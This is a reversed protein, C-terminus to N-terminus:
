FGEVIKIEEPTLEYLQYVLQDIQSEYEEVKVQKELDEFHDSSKAISLIKDVLSIVGKQEVDPPKIIPLDIIPEKDIQFNNGQMKGKWRLWFAMLSSNLLGVLYKQNIRESKIIYFTASVYCDFETYTFTPKVCKRVSIIKEGKFFYEDRARHLGYPKNDSTIVKKFQDLHNKIKPYSEIKKSDKFTSDTYIVWEENKSDGYWRGLKKTTYYPKVIELETKNLNIIAKENDSLVFIGTGVSFNNGLKKQSNKNVFNQPFVIGQAVEKMPDLKFNAKLLIKNLITEIQSNGFTLKKDIFDIRNIKPYLYEAKPDEVRNLISIVDTFKLNDGTLKRYDFYYEKEMSDNKFIMVMTQIGASEFIKYDGFDILSIIKTENIVKNRLISAGYSTVWNNQAIFTLIGSHNKLFDISKCAFLYWLDMKGQYYSSSRLENFASKQTYEKIYPPNAIVVDFGGNERFIDAFNLKWLFFPKTNTKKFREIENIKDAKGQDNLTTEILEWILKEIEKKLEDKVSKQSTEFFKKQLESLEQAKKKSNYFSNFLTGEESIKNINKLLNSERQIKQEIEKQKLTTLEGRNHLNMFEKQFESIREKIEKEQDEKSSEFKTLLQEDILKIGEYKELLSNGQMIKYDLNPLPRINKVDEEDVILSLWLRLKAIDVSSPDIDVGYLSNQIAIMKFNYLDRHAKSSIYTTLIARTKVVENMMGVLFAGSGVAPDCVRIEELKGDILLANSRISDPIKFDYTKTGRATAEDNQIASHGEKILFELDEKNVTRELETALYNVLSEQCMYHVIERPTYYTGKSKRDKVELLNEFVKGLMEPDIAVEKELPEDEKVTFNFRGFVDFIGDGKDGQKTLHDNSFLDNSLNIDTKSWSYDSIPEFLGGNLFPIRCKFKDWYSESGRDTSIAEYFLPELVENFFNDYKVIKKDFLDQLFQKSGSGWDEFKNVGLWGKKQIFYLFVIQGLLKKSFDITSIEKETFENKIIEDESVIKDLSEKLQLFLEKYKTFFEKTVPEISFAKELEEFAPCKDEQELINILQGQATHSNENKGVLFSSRKASTIKEVDKIKGEENREIDYDLKIFSFRWDSHEEIYFAALVADKSRTKLYELIFNRQMTRANFSSEKKLRVAIVDIIKKGSDIYKAIREYNEIYPKYAEKIYQNSIFTTSPEQCNKLLNKIFYSFAGLSFEKEFTDKIIRVAEERKM